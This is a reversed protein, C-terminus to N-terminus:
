MAEKNFYKTNKEVWTSNEKIWAFVLDRPYRAQVDKLKPFSPQAVLKNVTPMKIQFIETLHVKTLIHPMGYKEQGDRIGKEYAQQCLSKIHDIVFDNAVNEIPITLHTM